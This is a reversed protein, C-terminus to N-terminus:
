CWNHAIEALTLQKLWRLCRIDNLL